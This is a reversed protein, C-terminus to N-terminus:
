AMVLGPSSSFILRFCSRRWGFCGQIYKRTSFFISFCSFPQSSAAHLASRDCRRPTQQQATAPDGECHAETGQSERLKGASTPSKAQSASIGLLAFSVGPERRDPPAMAKSTESPDKRHVIKQPSHPQFTESGQLEVQLLHRRNRNERVQRHGCPSPYNSCRRQKRSNKLAAQLRVECGRESLPGFLALLPRQEETGARVAAPQSFVPARPIM